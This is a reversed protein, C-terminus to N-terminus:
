EKDEEIPHSVFKPRKGSHIGAVNETKIHAESEKVTKLVANGSNVKDTHRCGVHSEKVAEKKVEIKSEKAM